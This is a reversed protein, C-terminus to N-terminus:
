EVMSKLCAATMERIKDNRTNKAIDELDAAMGKLNNLRICELIAGYTSLIRPTETELAKAELAEMEAATPKGEPRDAFVSPEVKASGPQFLVLARLPQFGLVERVFGEVKPSKFGKLASLREGLMYFLLNPYELRGETNKISLFDVGTEDGAVILGRGFPLRCALLKPDDLLQKGIAARDEPKKVLVALAYAANMRGYKDPHKFLVGQLPEIASADNLKALAIPIQQRATNRGTPQGPKGRIADGQNVPYVNDPAGLCRILIPVVRADKLPTFDVGQYGMFDSALFVYEGVATLTGDELAAMFEKEGGDLIAGILYQAYEAVFDKPFDKAQPRNGSLLFRGLSLKTNRPADKARFLARAAQVAESRDVRDLWYLATSRLEENGAMEKLRAVKQEKTLETSNAVEMVKRVVPSPGPAGQGVSVLVALSVTVIVCMRIM